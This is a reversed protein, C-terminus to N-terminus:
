FDITEQMQLNRFDILLGDILITIRASPREFYVNNIFIVRNEVVADLQSYYEDELLEDVSYKDSLLIINPQNEILEAKDFGYGSENKAINSGFCSLVASEFTDGGAVTLNETVYIFNGINVADTNGLAKSVASYTDEGKETGTFMGEFILGLSTYISSFGELTTPAPILVTKIGAQEMTFTDKSAIPTSTIVLDPLLDIIADIDPNASSGLDAANKVDSPYDCYSSRGIIRDGYGMEYIIETLAPSLCVVREPQATIETNNVFFPYPTPETSETSETTEEPIDDNDTDGCGCLILAIAILLASLRKM